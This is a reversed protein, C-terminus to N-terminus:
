VMTSESEVKIESIWKNEENVAAEEAASFASPSPIGLNARIQEATQGKVLSAIRAGCLDLFPRIDMFNAAETVAFLETPGLSSVFEAYFPQVLEALNASVLPKALEKTREQGYHVCFAVVRELTHSDVLPVPVQEEGDSNNDLLVGFVYGSLAKIM